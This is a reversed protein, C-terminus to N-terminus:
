GGDPTSGQTGFLSPCKSALAKCSEPQQLLASSAFGADAKAEACFDKSAFSKLQATSDGSCQNLEAVTANCDKLRQAFSACADATSGADATTPPKALCKDLESRCKAQAEADDKAGFSALIQATFGCTYKRQEDESLQAKQYAQVDECYQKAETDSLSAGTKSSDVSTTPGSGGGAGGGGSGGSSCAIFAAVTTGIFFFSLIAKRM